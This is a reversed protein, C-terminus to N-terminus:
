PYPTTTFKVLTGAQMGVYEHNTTDYLLVGNFLQGGGLLATIEAATYQPAPLLNFLGQIQSITSNMTDITTAIWGSFEFTFEHNSPTFANIRDFVIM